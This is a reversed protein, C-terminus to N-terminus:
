FYCSLAFMTSNPAITYSLLIRQFSNSTEPKKSRPLVVALYSQLRKARYRKRCLTKCESCALAESSCSGLNSFDAFFKVAVENRTLFVCMFFCSYASVSSCRQTSSTSAVLICAVHSWPTRGHDWLMTLGEELSWSLWSRKTPSWSCSRRCGTGLAHFREACCPVAHYPHITRIPGRGALCVAQSIPGSSARTSHNRHSQHHTNYMMVNKSFREKRNIEICIEEYKQMNEEYKRWIKKM